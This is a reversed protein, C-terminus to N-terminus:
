TSKRGTIVESLSLANMYLSNTNIELDKCILLGLFHLGKENLKTVKHEEMEQVVM